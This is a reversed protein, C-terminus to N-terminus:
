ALWDGKDRVLRVDAAQSGTAFEKPIGSIQRLAKRERAYDRHRHRSRSRTFFNLDPLWGNRKAPGLRTSGWTQSLAVEDFM